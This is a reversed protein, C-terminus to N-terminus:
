VSCYVCDSLGDETRTAAYGHKIVETHGTAPIVEQEVWIKGCVSCHAGETLGTETCTPAVYPDTVRAYHTIVGTKTVEGDACYVTYAATGSNWNSGKTMVEWDSLTGGFSVSEIGSESFALYEISTVSAPLTVGTLGKCGYFANSGICTVGEPIVSNKCGAIVKKAVTDVLCNGESYYATNGSAVEISELALTDAFTAEGISEVNKPITVSTLKECNRFVWEGMSTLSEPLTLSELSICYDFAGSGISTVGEPIVIGKLAYCSSFASGGISKITTPLIISEIFECEFFANKKIDKGGTIVVTKLSEPIYNETGDYGVEGYRVSGFIFGFYQNDEWKQDGGVFPLTLSELSTCGRFASEGIETVSDPVIVSKLSTCGYFASKGISEVSNPIAVSTINACDYFARDGIFEVSNPIAVSTINACDWFATSRIRKVKYGNYYEPIIVETDTCTGIGGVGYGNLKDNMDTLEYFELGLSGTAHLLKQAELVEGCAGCHSGDSLGDETKTPAYGKDAVPTHSAPIIEQASLVEECVTCYTGNTFGDATCTPEKSALTEPKHGLAEVETQEILVAGCDSCKQGETIGAETCTPAIAAIIEIKHESVPIESQALLLTECTECFKGDTLGTQTCTAPVGALIKEKHGLASIERIETEGCFCKRREEGNKICTASSIVQWESFKHPHLFWFGAAAICLASFSSVAAILIKKKKPMKPKRYNKTEITPQNSNM